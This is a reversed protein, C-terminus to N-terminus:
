TVVGAGTEKLVAAKDIFYQHYWEIYEHKEKVSMFHNKWTRVCVLEMFHRIPGQKPCWSDMVPELFIHEHFESKAEETFGAFWWLIFVIWGAMPWKVIVILSPLVIKGCENDIPFKWLKGQETWLIMEEFGNRPPHTVALKLEKAELADWMSLKPLESEPVYDTKTPSFIGLPPAGFIDVKRRTEGRRITPQQRPRYDRDRDRQMYQRDQRDGRDGDRQMYQRDGRDRDRGTFEREGRPMMRQQRFRNQDGLEQRVRQARSGFGEMQPSGEDRQPVSQQQRRDIKMGAFVESHLVCHTYIFNDTLNMLLM